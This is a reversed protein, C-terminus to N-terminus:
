FCKCCLRRGVRLPMSRAEHFPIFDDWSFVVALMVLVVGALMVAAVVAVVVGM